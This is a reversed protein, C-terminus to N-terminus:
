LTGGKSNKKGWNIPKQVPAKGRQKLRPGHLLGDTKTEKQDHLRTVMQSRM